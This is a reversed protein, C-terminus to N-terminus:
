TGPLFFFDAVKCRFEAPVKDDTLEQGDEVVQPERGQHYVTVDRAEPDIVWVAQVGAQLFQNVRRTLKGIRENCSLVEVALAPAGEIGSPSLDEYRRAADFLAVEPGRTSEPGCSPTNTLVYGRGRVRVHNNLVWAVNGCILCHREGLRSPETDARASRPPPVPEPHVYGSFDQMQAPPAATTKSGM